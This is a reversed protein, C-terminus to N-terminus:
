DKSTPLLRYVGLVAAESELSLVVLFPPLHKFPFQSDTTYHM